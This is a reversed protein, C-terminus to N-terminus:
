SAYVRHPFFRLKLVNTGELHTHQMLEADGKVQYVQGIGGEPAVFLSWHDPEGPGQNQLVLSLVLEPESPAQEVPTWAETGRRRRYSTRGLTAYQWNGRTTIEYESM